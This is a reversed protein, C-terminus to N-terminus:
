IWINKDKVDINNIKLLKCTEDEFIEVYLEIESAIYKFNGEAKVGLKEFKRRIDLNSEKERYAYLETKYSKLENNKEM